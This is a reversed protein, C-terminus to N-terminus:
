ETATVSDLHRPSRLRMPATATGMFPDGCCWNVLVQISSISEEEEDDDDDDNESSSRVAAKAAYYDPLRTPLVSESRITTIATTAIGDNMDDHGVAEFSEKRPSLSVLEQKELRLLEEAVKAENLAHWVESMWLQQRLPSTEHTYRLPPAPWEEDDNHTKKSQTDRDSVVQNTSADLVAVVRRLWSTATAHKGKRVVLPKMAEPCNRSIGAAGDNAKHIPKSAEQLTHRQTPPTEITSTPASETQAKNKEKPNSQLSPSLLPAPRVQANKTKKEANSQLPQKLVTSPAFQAKVKSSPSSTARGSTRSQARKQRKGLTNSDKPHANKNAVCFTSNKKNSVNPTINTNILSPDKLSFCNKTESVCARSRGPEHQSNYRNKFVHEKLEDLMAEASPPPPDRHEGERLGTVDQLWRSRPSLPSPRALTASQLRPRRSTLLLIPQTM